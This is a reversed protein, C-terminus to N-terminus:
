VLGKLAERILDGAPVEEGVRGQAESVARKAKGDPYGLTILAQIADQTTAVQAGSAATGPALDFREALDVILRQATKKGVGPARCFAAVDGGHLASVIEDANLRSLVALATRPGVGSVGLLARFISREHASAFGFLDLANERVHLYTFLEVDGGPPPATMSTREPVFVDLGVGGVLLTLRAPEVDLVKGRVLSIM